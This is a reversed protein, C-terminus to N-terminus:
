RERTWLMLAGCGASTRSFQAPMTANDPYYEVAGLDSVQFQSLDIPVDRTDNSARARSSGPWRTDPIHALAVGDVYVDPQGGNTCRASKLLFMASGSMQKVMVGPAHATLLNGLSRNDEKRLVTEDIFYGATRTKRREEFGRLGPSIYRRSSDRTIVAPLEAVRKLTVTIGSTDSPSMPISMTQVAYGLKRIRVQSGGPSLFMLSVTGTSTTLASTGTQMDMVEVGNLPQGTDEDFVGMLRTPPPAAPAPARGVPERVPPVQAFGPSALAVFLCAVLAIHGCRIRHGESLSM